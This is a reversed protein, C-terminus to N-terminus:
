CFPTALRRQGDWECRCRPGNAANCARQCVSECKQARELVEPPIGDFTPRQAEPPKQIDPPQTPMPITQAISQGQIMTLIAAAFLLSKLM